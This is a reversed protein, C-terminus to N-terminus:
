PHLARVAAALYFIYSFERHLVLRLRVEAEFLIGVIAPTM